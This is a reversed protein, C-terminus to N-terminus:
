LYEKTAHASVLLGKFSQIEKEQFLRKSDFIKISLSKRFIM